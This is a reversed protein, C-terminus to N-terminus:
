SSSDSEAEWRRQAGDREQVGLRAAEEGMRGRCMLAWMKWDGRLSWFPYRFTAPRNKEVLFHGIWALGYGAALGWLLLSPRRRAAASALLLLGLTSGAFHLARTGPKRHQGLYFPWFEDFTSIPRADSM